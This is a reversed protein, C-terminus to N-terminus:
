SVSQDQSEDGATSSQEGTPASVENARVVDEVVVGETVDAGDVTVAAPVEAAALVEGAAMPEEAPAADEGIAELGRVDRYASGLAYVDGLPHSVPYLAALARSRAVRFEVYYRPGRPPDSRYKYRLGEVAVIAQRVDAPDLNHYGTIKARVRESIILEAVWLSDAM